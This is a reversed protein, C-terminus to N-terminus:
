APNEDLTLVRVAGALAIAEGMLRRPVRPYDESLVHKTRELGAKDFRALKGTLQEPTKTLRSYHLIPTDLVLAVKGHLGTLREHIPREYCVGDSKKFLRLQLDPWLGYGVKAHKEDPYLTLRPFWCGQLNKIHMLSTFLQWTDESFREDGDLSLVWLGECQELMFNRQSAFDDLPRALHRVPAACRFDTEPVTEADWVVVIERMWDPFQDFFGKLGPEDPSLIVGVSMDPAKPPMHSLYSSNLALHPKAQLLMRQVAQHNRRAEPGSEPNLVLCSNGADFGGLALLYLLAWPSTDVALSLRPSRILEPHAALALRTHDPSLECVTLDTDQSLAQDLALALEGSGLGFLVVRSHGSKDLLNRVTEVQKATDVAETAEQPAASDPAKWDFSLVQETYATILESKM